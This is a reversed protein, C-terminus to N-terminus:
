RRGVLVRSIGLARPKRRDTGAPRLLGPAWSHGQEQRVRVIWSRPVALVRRLSWAGRALERGAVVRAGEVLRLVCSALGGRALVGRVRLFRSGGVRLGSGLGRGRCVCCRQGTSRTGAPLPLGKGARGSGLGRGRCVCGLQGARRGTGRTGAPFLFGRVRRVLIWAGGVVGRTLGGRALVGCRRLFCSGGVRWPWYRPAEEWSACFVDPWGEM